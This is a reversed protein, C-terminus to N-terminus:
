NPQKVQAIKCNVFEIVSDLPIDLETFLERISQNDRYPLVECSADILADPNDAEKWLRSKAKLMAKEKKPLFLQRMLLMRITAFFGLGAETRVMRIFELPKLRSAAFIKRQFLQGDSTLLGIQKLLDESIPHIASFAVLVSGFDKAVRKAENIIKKIMVTDFIFDVVGTAVIVTSYSGDKLPLEQGDAQIFKLGRRKKAYDIMTGNLEIGNANFGMRRLSEVILGQGAGVILVPDNIRDELQHICDIDLHNNEIYSLYPAWVDWFNSLDTASM